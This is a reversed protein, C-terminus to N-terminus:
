KKELVQKKKQNFEEETLVGDDVLAKLKKLIEIQENVIDLNSRPTSEEKKALLPSSDLSADSSVDPKELQDEPKEETPSTEQYSKQASAEEELRAQEELRRDYEEDIIRQKELEEFEQKEKNTMKTQLGFVERVGNSLLTFGDQIEDFGLENKINEKVTARWEKTGRKVATKTSNNALNGLADKSESHAADFVDETLGDDSYEPNQVQNWFGDWNLEIEDTVEQYLVPDLPISLHSREIMRNIGEAWLLIDRTGGDSFIFSHTGEKTYIELENFERSKAKAARRIKDYPFILTDKHKGTFSFRVLFLAMNTLFLTSDYRGRNYAVGRRELVIREGEILNFYDTNSM